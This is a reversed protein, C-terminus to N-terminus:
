PQSAIGNDNPSSRVQEIEKKVTEPSYATPNRAQLLASIERPVDMTDSIEIQVGFLDRVVDSHIYNEM